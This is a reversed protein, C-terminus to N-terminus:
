STTIDRTAYDFRFTVSTDSLLHLEHNAGDRVGFRGYNEDWTGNVLIKFQYTGAPLQLTQKWLNETPEWVFQLERLDTSWHGTEGFLPDFDGSLAVSQPQDHWAEDAPTDTPVQETAVDPSVELTPAVDPPTPDESNTADAPALDAMTESVDSEEATAPPESSSPESGETSATADAETDTRVAQVAQVAQADEGLSEPSQPAHTVAPAQEPVPAGSIMANIFQDPDAFAHVARIGEDTATWGSRGKVLWGAKVLKATATTLAKFGRPVGGSLLEAEKADFPVAAVAQSMVDSPAVSNGAEQHEALLALTTRLRVNTSNRPAIVIEKTTNM